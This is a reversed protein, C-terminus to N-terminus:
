QCFTHFYIPWITKTASINSFYWLHFFNANTNSLCSKILSTAMAVTLQQLLATTSNLLM